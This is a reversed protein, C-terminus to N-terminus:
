KIGHLRGHCERCLVIVDNCTYEWAMLGHKYYKHHVQLCNTAGCRECSRGRVVFVFERFAKWREDDLQSAYAVRSRVKKPSYDVTIPITLKEKGKM